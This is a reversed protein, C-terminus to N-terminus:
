ALVPEAREQPPRLTRWTILAEAILWLTLAVLSVTIGFQFHRL